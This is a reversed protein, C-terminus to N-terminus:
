PRNELAAIENKLEQLRAEARSADYFDLANNKLALNFQAIAQHSLGTRYYYEGLAIQARAPNGLKEEAEALLQYFRPKRDRERLFDRLVERATGPQEADLLSEVYGLTLAPNQPYLKLAARYHSLAADIKDRAFALRARALLFAIRQPQEDLLKDLVTKAQPYDGTEMLSLVYGYREATQNLYRGSQLNDAFRDRLEAPQQSTLVKIRNRMLHYAETQEAMEPSYQRARDRADAIRTDTVPHTRLFEPGQPGYLRNAKHMQEFFSAMSHPDFGANALLEIGHHDAEKENARTFNIRSQISGATISAIAAEGMEGSQGGLVIAAILAALVPLSSGGGFDYARAHHRQTVHAIEHAMVSALESETRTSLILGYHIGIYGGPLAFANIDPADILFFHFDTMDSDGAAILRYGLHNLYSDILPDNIIRGSRQINRMVSEGVRKEETPTAVSAAADGIDPLTPAASLRAPSVILLVILLWAPHTKLLHLIHDM